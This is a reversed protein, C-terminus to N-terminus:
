WWYKDAEPSRSSAQKVWVGCPMFPILPNDSSKDFDNFFVSASIAELETDYLGYNNLQTRLGKKIIADEDIKFWPSHLGNREEIPDVVDYGLLHWEPNKKVISMHIFALGFIPALSNFRELPMDFAVEVVDVFNDFNFNVNKIEDVFLCLGHQYGGLSEKDYPYDGVDEEDYPTPWILPDITAPVRINSIETFINNLRLDFGLICRSYNEKLYSTNQNSM